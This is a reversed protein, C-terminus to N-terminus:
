KDLIKTFYLKRFDNYSILTNSSVIGDFVIGRERIIERLNLVDTFGLKGKLLINYFEENEIFLLTEVMGIIDWVNLPFTIDITKPIIPMGADIALTTNMIDQESKELDMSMAEISNVPEGQLLPFDWSNVLLNKQNRGLSQNQIPNEGLPGSIISINKGNLCEGPAETIQAALGMDYLLEDRLGELARLNRGGIVLYNTNPAIFRAWAEGIPNDAGWIGIEGEGPGIGTIAMLKEVTKFLSILRISYGDLLYISSATLYERDEATFFHRWYPFILIKIDRSKLVSVIDDATKFPDKDKLDDSHTFFGFKPM